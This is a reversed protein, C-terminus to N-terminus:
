NDVVDRFVTNKIDRLIINVQQTSIKEDIERNILLRTAMSLDRRREVKHYIEIYYITAIRKSIPDMRNIVADVKEPYEDDSEGDGGTPGILHQWPPQKPYDTKALGRRAFRAWRLLLLHARIQRAKEGYSNSRLESWTPRRETTTSVAINGLVEVYETTSQGVIEAGRKCQSNTRSQTTFFM